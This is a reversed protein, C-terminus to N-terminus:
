IRGMILNTSPAIQWLTPWGHHNITWLIPQVWFFSALLAIGTKDRRNLRAIKIM